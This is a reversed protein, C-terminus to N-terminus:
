APYKSIEDLAYVLHRYIKPGFHVYCTDAWNVMEDAAQNPVTNIAEINDSSTAGHFDDAFSEDLEASEVVLDYGFCNWLPPSSVAGQAMSLKSKLWKSFEGLYLVRVRRDQLFALLWRKLNPHLDTQDVKKLLLNRRVVDFAKSIDM